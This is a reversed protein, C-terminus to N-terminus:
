PSHAYFEQLLGNSHQQQHTQKMKELATLVSAEEKTLGEGASWQGVHLITTIHDLVVAEMIDLDDSMMDAISAPNWM